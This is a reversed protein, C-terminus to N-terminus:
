SLNFAGKSPVLSKRCFQIMEAMAPTFFKKDRHLLALVCELQDHEVRIKSLEGTRLEKRVGLLPLFGIGLNLSVASKVAEMNDLEMAVSYNEIGYSRLIQNAM